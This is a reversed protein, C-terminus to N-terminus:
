CFRIFDSLSIVAIFLTLNKKLCLTYIYHINNVHVLAEGTECIPSM